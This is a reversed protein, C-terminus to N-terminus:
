SKKPTGLTDATFLSLVALPAGVGYIWQTGFHEGLTGLLPPGLLFIMFSTQAMSAVNIASPRDTRQAAASIALPFMVSCGIGILVFGLLSIVPSIAWL